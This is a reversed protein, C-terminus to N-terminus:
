SEAFCAELNANDPLIKLQTSVNGLSSLLADPTKHEHCLLALQWAPRPYIQMRWFDDVLQQLVSSVEDSLEVDFMQGSELAHEKLLRQCFGHITFIGAQDISLLATNIRKSMVEGDIEGSAILADAWLMVNDDIGEMRGSLYAKAEALRARVREKLEKTAAKTFTVILIKEIALDEEVVFRLALMAIAYTKGTGASAELLSIGQQLPTSIPNFTQTHPM